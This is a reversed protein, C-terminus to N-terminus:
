GAGTAVFCGALFGEICRQAALVVAGFGVISQSQQPDALAARVSRFGLESARV